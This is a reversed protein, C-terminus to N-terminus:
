AAPADAPALRAALWGMAPIGVVAAVVMWLPHRIAVLNSITAALLLAAIVWAYRSRDHEAVRTAVLGGALPGLLWGLLVTALAAPPASEAHAKLQAVDAPDFGPPVPHLLGALMDCASVVTVAVVMGGVIAIFSRMAPPM